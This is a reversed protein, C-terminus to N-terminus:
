AQYWKLPEGNYRRWYLLIRTKLYPCWAQVSYELHPRIYSKYLVSFSNSDFYKFTRKIVRLCNMARAAAKACQKSPKCDQGFVVGLDKEETTEDLLTNNLHYRAGTNDHGLHMKKCKKANFRLLWKDSWNHLRDLDDQLVCSIQIMM